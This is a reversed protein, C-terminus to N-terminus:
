AITRGKLPQWLIMGPAFPHRVFCFSESIKCTKSLQWAACCLGLWFVASDSSAVSGRFYLSTLFSPCGRTELIVRIFFPFILYESTASRFAHLVRICPRFFLAPQATKQLLKTGGPM